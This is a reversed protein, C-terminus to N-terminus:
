MTRDWDEMTAENLKGLLAVGASNVLIDITGFAELAQDAARRTQDIDGLDAEIIVCRRGHKGVLAKAEALGGRDRAVAAIDAGAEALVHCIEFGLGKSAGTVLARKGALSFRDTWTMAPERLPAVWTQRKSPFSTTLWSKSAQSCSAFVRGAGSISPRRCSM